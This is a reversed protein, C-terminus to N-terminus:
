NVPFVKQLINQYIKVDVEQFVCFIVREIQLLSIPYANLRVIQIFVPQQFICFIFANTKTLTIQKFM